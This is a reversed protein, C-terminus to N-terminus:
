NTQKPKVERLDMVGYAVNSYTDYISDKSILESPEYQKSDSKKITNGLTVKQVLLYDSEIHFHDKEILSFGFVKNNAKILNAIDETKEDCFPHYKFENTIIVKKNFYSKGKVKVSSAVKNYIGNFTCSHNSLSNNSIFM